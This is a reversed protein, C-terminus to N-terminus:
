LEIFEEPDFDRKAEKGIVDRWNMPNIGTGPRKSTINLESFAEGQLIRTTAVISKRVVLINDRESETIKKEGSGIAIEINRISKIMEHLENPELSAKHDPGPLKRDLTFHKEVIRAGMAVAAIPIEIGASHDSYGVQVNLHNKITLMASLNIDRMPAPYSSTCHLVTIQDRKSGGMELTGLAAEIESMSSMGTSLIIPKNFSAAKILYPYNTIEGSPIKIRKTGLEELFVLSEVDFATSFFEIGSNTCYDFLETHANPSLELRSLMEFQTENQVDNIQYNAKRANSTVLSKATFTQFKVVDAGAEVAADILKKALEIEGNHNVGAEAIILTKTTDRM